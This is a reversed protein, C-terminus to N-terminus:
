ACTAQLDIGAANEIRVNTYTGDGGMVQAVSAKFRFDPCQLLGHCIVVEGKWDVAATLDLVAGLSVHIEGFQDGIFVGDLVLTGQLVEIKGGVLNTFAGFAHRFLCGCNMRYIGANNLVVRWSDTPDSTGTILILGASLNNFVGNGFLKGGEFNWTGRHHIIGHCFVSVVPNFTTIVNM